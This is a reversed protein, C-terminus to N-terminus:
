LIIHMGSPYILVGIAHLRSGKDHLKVGQTSNEFGTASLSISTHSLSLGKLAISAGSLSLSFGTFSLKTPYTSLSFGVLHLKLSANITLSAATHHHGGAAIHVVAAGASLTDTSGITTDVNGSVFQGLMAGVRIDRSGGVTTSQSGGYSQFALAGVTQDRTAGYDETWSAAIDTTRVAGYTELVNGGIGENLAAGVINAHNAGTDRTENGGILMTRNGGIVRVQNSGITESQDGGVDLTDNNGIRITQNQGVTETNDSGIHTFANTGVNERRENGVNTTMDKGANTYIRESGATDEFTIENRIGGGPTSLSWMTSHTPVTQAPRNKGNYVRGTVVPRDPDGEEFEVIVECGVRPHWIGGQGARAFPESVRVWKSSAEKSQRQKDTDWHFGVRVCGITAPGGINIEGATGPEATVFATQTGFIRPKPTLRLPRFNSESVNSGRGRCACEIEVRFPQKPANPGEVSLVGQQYGRAQIRTVLYEGDFRTKPHELSFVGGPALLRTSGTGNAFTSETHLAELKAQALPMGLEVGDLYGGPYAYESLNNSEHADAKVDINLAPKEWNYEGLQVRQPRLRAGLRFQDISHGLKGPSFVDDIAVHPRGFDKDSLVLLSTEDDHEFHFSIGEEELLRAVFDFDSEGYQVVYPHAKADDLRPSAGIRWTFRDAAPEYSPGGMPPDLLAGSVLTMGTDAQLVAEIIRRLTKGLFIRQRKRHRARVLPPELTIRFIPGQSDVGVDEAATIVGHVLRFIPETGTAIRLSARKGIFEEPDKDDGKLLAIVEYRFLQSMAENADFQVVRLYQWPGEVSSSGELALAFDIGNM